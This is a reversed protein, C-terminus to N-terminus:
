EKNIRAVFEIRVIAKYYDSEYQVTKSASRTIEIDDFTLGRPFLRSIWEFKTNAESEGKDLPTCVDIQFIGTYEDQAEEFNALAKPENFMFNLIFFRKDAPQVFHINPYSVNKDTIFNVGALENLKEFRSTLQKQLDVTTM